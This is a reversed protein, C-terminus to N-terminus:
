GMENSACARRGHAKHKEVWKTRCRRYRRARKKATKRRAGVLFTSILGWQVSSLPATLATLINAHVCFFFGVCARAHRVHIVSALAVPRVGRAAAVIGVVMGVQIGHAGPASANAFPGNLASSSDPDLVSHPM